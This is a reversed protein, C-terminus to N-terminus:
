NTSMQNDIPQRNTASRDDTRLGTAQGNVCDTRFYKSTRDVAVLGKEGFFASPTLRDARISNNVRWHAILYVGSDFGIVFGSDILKKLDTQKAGVMRILRQTSNLFGEDDAAMSLQFYLAQASLPLAVFADSYVVTQSFMRKNAM